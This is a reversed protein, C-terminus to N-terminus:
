LIFFRDVVLLVLSLLVLVVTKSLSSREEHFLAKISKEVTRALLYNFIM